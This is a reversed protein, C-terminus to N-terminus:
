NDSAFLADLRGVIVSWGFLGSVIRDTYGKARAVGQAVAQHWVM